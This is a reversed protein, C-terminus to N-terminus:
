NNETNNQNSKDVKKSDVVMPFAKGDNASLLGKVNEGIFFIPQKEKLVNVMEFFLKGREDKFCLRSPNQAIISFSQCPFAGLLIDHSPVEIPVIDSVDKM